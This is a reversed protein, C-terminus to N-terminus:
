TAHSWLLAPDASATRLSRGHAVFSVCICHPSGYSTRTSATGWLCSLGRDMVPGGCGTGWWSSFAQVPGEQEASSGAPAPTSINPSCVSLPFLTLESGMRPAEAGDVQSQGRVVGWWGGSWGCCFASYCLPFGQRMGARAQSPSGAGAGEDGDLGM